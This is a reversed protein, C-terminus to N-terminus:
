DDYFDKFYGDKFCEDARKRMRKREEDDSSFYNIFCEIVVDDEYVEKFYDKACEIMWEKEKEMYFDIFKDLKKKDIRKQKANDKSM